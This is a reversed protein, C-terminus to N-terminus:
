SAGGPVPTGLTEEQRLQRYSGHKEALLTNTIRDLLALTGTYGVTLLRQGGIRDHVPFGARVVPIGHRETFFRGGSNGIALNAGAWLAASEIEDFDAGELVVPEVGDAGVPLPPLCASLRSDASGTAIVAPYAGNEMCVRTLACVTEPEGYVVPRGEANYKHADAMTDLLWGRENLLADPVTRGSVNQLLKILRDCAEVGTPLPLTVLPVGHEQELWLGPSLWDPCTGGFQITLPAGPMAAIEETTTGGPPIKSYREAYPRDLTMSYDPLLTYELGMLSLIRKLERIDAPSVHPV